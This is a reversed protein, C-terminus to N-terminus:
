SNFHQEIKTSLETLYKSYGEVGSVSPSIAFHKNDNKIIDWALTLAFKKIELNNNEKENNM